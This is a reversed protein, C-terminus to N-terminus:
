KLNFFRTVVIRPEEPRLTRKCGTCRPIGGAKTAPIMLQYRNMKMDKRIQWLKPFKMNGDATKEFKYSIITNKPIEPGELLFDGHVSRCILPCSSIIQGFSYSFPVLEFFSSSQPDRLFIGECNEAQVM